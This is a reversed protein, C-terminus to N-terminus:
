QLMEACCLYDHSFYFLLQNRSTTNNPIYLEDPKIFSLLFIVSLNCVYLIMFQEMQFIHLKLHFSM